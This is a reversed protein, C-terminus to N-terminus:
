LGRESEKTPDPQYFLERVEVPGLFAVAGKLIWALVEDMAAADLLMFGIHEMIKLKRM